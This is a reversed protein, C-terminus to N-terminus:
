SRAGKGWWGGDPDGADDIQVHRGRPRQPRVHDGIPDFDMARALEQYQLWRQAVPSARLEDIMAVMEAQTPAPKADSAVYTTLERPARPRADIEM